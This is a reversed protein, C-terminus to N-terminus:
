MKWLAHKGKLEVSVASAFINLSIIVLISLLFPVIKASNSREEANLMILWEIIM